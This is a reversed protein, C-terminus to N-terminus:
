VDCLRGMSPVGGDHVRVSDNNSIIVKRNKRLTTDTPEAGFTKIILDTVRKFEILDLGVFQLLIQAPEITNGEADFKGGKVEKKIEM